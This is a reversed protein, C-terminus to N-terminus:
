SQGTTKLKDGCSTCFKQDAANETGCKDCKLAGTGVPGSTTTSTPTPKTEPAPRRRSRWFLFGGVIVAAIVITAIIQLYSTSWVANVAHPGDMTISGQPSTGTYDGQWQVFVQQILYGVPSTVSFKATSGADYYGGGQPNGLGGPSNVTLLYQTTYTAVATHPGNMTVTVQNGTQTAGDISWNQFAYQVGPSGTINQPAQSTQASDGANFWGGGSVVTVNAPTTEVILQYQTQYTFTLSGASTVSVTNQACYYRVGAGGPVYQDVTVNHSTGIPFSLTQTQSGSVTGQNQGDVQLSSSYQQPLGSFQVSVPYTNPGVAYTTSASSYSNCYDDAAVSVTYTGYPQNATLTRTVIRASYTQFSFTIPPGSPQNITITGEAPRTVSVQLTIKDGQIYSSKDTSVGVSLPPGVPIVALYASASGTDGSSGTNTVSVTFPYNGPCYLGPINTTSIVLTSSGSSASVTSPSFRSGTGYPLGSLSFGYTAGLLGGVFSVTYSARSGQPASQTTPSISVVPSANVRSPFVVAISVIILVVLLKSRASM